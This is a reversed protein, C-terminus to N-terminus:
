SAGELRLPSRRARDFDLERITAGSNTGVRKAGFARLTAIETLAGPAAAFTPVRPSSRRACLASKGSRAQSDHPSEAAERAGSRAPRRRRRFYLQLIGRPPVGTKCESDMLFPRGHTRAPESSCPRRRRWSCGPSGGQACRRGDMEATRCVPSSRPRRRRWRCRPSNRPRLTPWDHGGHIAGALAGEWRL